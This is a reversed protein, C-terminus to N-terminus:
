VGIGFRVRNERIAKHNTNTQKLTPAANLAPIATLVTVGSGSKGTQPPTPGDFGTFLFAPSRVTRASTNSCPSAFTAITLVSKRPKGPTRQLRTRAPTLLTGGSFM